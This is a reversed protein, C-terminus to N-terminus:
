IDMLKAIYIVINVVHDRDLLTNWGRPVRDAQDPNSRLCELSRASRSFFDLRVFSDCFTWKRADKRQEWQGPTAGWVTGPGLNGHSAVQMSKMLGQREGRDLPAKESVMVSFADIFPRIM